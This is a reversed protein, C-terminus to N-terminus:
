AAGGSVAAAGPGPALGAFPNAIEVYVSQTALDGIVEDLDAARTLLNAKCRLVDASLLLDVPQHGRLPALLEAALGLLDREPAIRACGLAGVVGM